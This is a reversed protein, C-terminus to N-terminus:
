DEGEAKQIKINGKSVINWYELVSDRVHEPIKNNEDNLFAMLRASRRKDEEKAAKNLNWSIKRHGKPHNVTMECLLQYCVEENNWQANYCELFVKQAYGTVIIRSLYDAFKNAM